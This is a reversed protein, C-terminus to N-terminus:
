EKCYMNYLDLFDCEGLYLIEIEGNPFANYPRFICITTDELQNIESNSSNM